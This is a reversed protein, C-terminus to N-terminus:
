WILNKFIDKIESENKMLEEILKTTRDNRENDFKELWLNILHKLEELNDFNTKKNIEEIRWWIIIIQYNIGSNVIIKFNKIKKFQKQLKRVKNISVNKLFWNRFKDKQMKEKQM